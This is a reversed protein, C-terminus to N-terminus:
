TASFYLNFLTPAMYLRAYDIPSRFTVMADEVRVVANIDKCDGNQLCVISGYYM